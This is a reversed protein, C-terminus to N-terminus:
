RSVRPLGRTLGGAPLRVSGSDPPGSSGHKLGDFTRLTNTRLSCWRSKSETSCSAPLETCRLLASTATRRLAAQSPALPTDHIGLRRLVPVFAQKKHPVHLEIRDPCSLSEIDRSGNGPSPIWRQSIQATAQPHQIAPDQNPVVTFHFGFCSPESPRQNAEVGGLLTHASPQHPM